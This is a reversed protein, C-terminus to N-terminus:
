QLSTKLTFAAVLPRHDCKKNNKRIHEKTPAKM